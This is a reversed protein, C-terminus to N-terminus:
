GEERRKRYEAPTLGATQKFVRNFTPMSVYGVQDAIEYIKLETESLLLKAKHIRVHNLYNLFTQGTSKKFLASFHSISLFARQAADALSVNDMYHHELYECVHRISNMAPLHAEHVAIQNWESILVHFHREIASKSEFEKLTRWDRAANMSQLLENLKNSMISLLSKRFGINAEDFTLIQDVIRRSQEQLKLEDGDTPLQDVFRQIDRISSHFDTMNELRQISSQMAEHLDKQRLPKLLYDSVGLRVAQKAYQFDDYGSVIIIIIPINHKYIQECLWIGDRQPMRIDTILMTPWNGQIFEWAEEGNSVEGAIQFFPSLNEVMEVIANRIWLEDEAVLVQFM